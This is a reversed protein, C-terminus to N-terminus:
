CRENVEEPQEADLDVCVRAEQDDDGAVTPALEIGATPITAAAAIAAEAKGEKM